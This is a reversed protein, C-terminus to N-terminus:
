RTFIAQMALGFGVMVGTLVMWVGFIWLATKVLTAGTLKALGICRVALLWFTMADFLALLTHVPNQPDFHKVLLILSPAAYLNGTVVILLTKVVVGLVGIMLALGSLEVVKMFGIQTKLFLRAILWLLLAWWFLSLFSTLVAGAGGYIKMMTPGSYKEAMAAAQDAQERTIKGANVQKDFARQQQEHLSQVVEPQSFIVVSSIIGALALMFVPVLWNGTSSRRSKIEEFVEGPAAFVNLLRSWLSTQPPQSEAEPIPPVNEM